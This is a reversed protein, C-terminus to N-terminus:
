RKREALRRNASTLFPDVAPAQGAAVALSKIEDLERRAEDFRGTEILIAALPQRLGFDNPRAAVAKRAWEEAEVFKGQQVLLRAYDGMAMPGGGKVGRKLYKEALDLRGEKLRLSGLATNAAPDNRDYTLATVADAELSRVDGCKMDLALLMASLRLGRFGDKWGKRINERARKIEEDRLSDPLDAYGAGMANLSEVLPEYKMEFAKRQFQVVAQREEDSLKRMDKQPGYSVLNCHVESAAGAMEKFDYYRDVLLIRNTIPEDDRLFNILFEREEVTKKGIRKVDSPKYEDIMVDFLGDGILLKRTGIDALVHRVFRESASQTAFRAPGMVTITAFVLLVATWGCLTWHNEGLRRIVALPMVGIFVFVIIGSIQVWHMGLAEWPCNPLIEPEVFFAAMFGIIWVLSVAPATKARRIFSFWTIALLGPAFIIGYPSEWIGVAALAGALALRLWVFRREDEEEVDPREPITVRSNLSAIVTASLFLPVLSLLFPLLRTVKEAFQPVVAFTAMALFPALRSRPLPKETRTTLLDGFPEYWFCMKKVIYGVCLILVAFCVANVQVCNELTVVARWVPAGSGHRLLELGEPTIFCSV